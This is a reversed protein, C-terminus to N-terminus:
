AVFAQWQPLHPADPPCGDCPNSPNALAWAPTKSLSVFVHIKRDIADRIADPYRPDDFAIPDTSQKQMDAWFLDVRIAGVDLHTKTTTSTSTDRLFKLIEGTPPQNSPKVLVPMPVVVGYNVNPQDPMLVRGIPVAVVTLAAALLIATRM